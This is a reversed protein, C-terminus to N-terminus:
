QQEFPITAFFLRVEEVVKLSEAWGLVGSRKFMMRRENRTRSPSIGKELDSEQDVGAVHGLREGMATKM